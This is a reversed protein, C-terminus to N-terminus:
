RSSLIAPDFIIEMGFSINGNEKLALNALALRRVLPNKEFVSAQEALATYSRAEGTMVLKAEGANFRFDTFRASALTNEELFKFLRSPFRHAALLVSASQIEQSTKFLEQILPPEFDAELRKLSNTLAAIQRTLLSKYLSVGGATLLSAAFLIIGGFMLIGVGGRRPATDRAPYTKSILSPEAM